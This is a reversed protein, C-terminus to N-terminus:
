FNAFYFAVLYILLPSNIVDEFISLFTKAITTALDLDELNFPFAVSGIPFTVANSCKNLLSSNAFFDSYIFSYTKHVEFLLESSSQM